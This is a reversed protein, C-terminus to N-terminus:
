SNVPVRTGLIAGEEDRSAVRGQADPYAYLLSSTQLVVSFVSVSSPHLRAKGSRSWVRLM